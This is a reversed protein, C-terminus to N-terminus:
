LFDCPRDAGGQCGCEYEQKTFWRMSSFRSDQQLARDITRLVTDLEESSMAGFLGKIGRRREEVLLLWPDGGQLLCWVKRKPFVVEFAWGYFSHQSVDTAYLGGSKIADALAKSISRGDPVLLDGNETWESEDAFSAKFTVFTRKTM